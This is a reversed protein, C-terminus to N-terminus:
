TLTRTAYMHSEPITQLLYEMPSLNNLSQHGRETNYWILHKMLKSVFAPLDTFLLDLNHNLFEEKLTRNAREIYGNIKPCRPYIFLHNIAKEKLYKDFEGLFELGNDSQVTGIGGKVPYVAELKKFFDKANSSNLTKYPYSFKFKLKVDIANFVYRKLGLNFETISDIEIYGFEKPQPSKKVKTKYVPRNKAYGSNADHYSRSSHKLFINRRKIIKGILSESPAKIGLSQCYKKLPAKLKAKGIHHEKRENRIWDVVRPDISMARRRKPARSKPILATLKGENKLLESRWRYITTKPVGYAEIAKATGNKKHYNIVQLRFKATNDSSFKLLRDIREMAKVSHLKTGFWLNKFRM